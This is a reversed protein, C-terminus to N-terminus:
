TPHSTGSFRGTLTTHLSGCPWAMRPPPVRLLSLLPVDLSFDCIEISLTVSLNKGPNWPGVNVQEECPSANPDIRYNIKLCCSSYLLTFHLTLFNASAISFTLQFRRAPSITALSLITEKEFPEHGTCSLIGISRTTDHIDYAITNNGLSQELCEEIFVATQEELQRWKKQHLNM